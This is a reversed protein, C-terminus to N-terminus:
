INPPDLAGFYKVSGRRDFIQPTYLGWINSALPETLYKPPTCGWFIERIPNGFIQPTYLGRINSPLPETLYKHPTCGGFM